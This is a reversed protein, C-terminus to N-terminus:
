NVENPKLVWFRMKGDISTLSELAPADMARLRLGLLMTELEMKWFPTEPVPMYFGNSGEQEKVDSIAMHSATGPVRQDGSSQMLVRSPDQGYLFFLAIPIVVYWKKENSVLIIAFTMSVMASFFYAHAQHAILGDNRVFIWGMLSVGMYLLLGKMEISRIGMNYYLKKWGLWFVAYYKVLIYIIVVSLAAISKWRLEFLEMLSPYNGGFGSFDIPAFLYSLVHKFNDVMTWGYIAGFSFLDKMNLPNMLNFGGAGPAVPPPLIAWSVLNCLTILGATLVVPHFRKSKFHYWYYLGMAGAIYFVPAKSAILFITFFLLEKENKEKRLILIIIQFLVFIYVFSSVILNYSIEDGYIMLLSIVVITFNFLNKPQIIRHLQIFFHSIFVIILLYRIEVFLMMNPHPAIFGISALVASPLLHNAAMEFPYYTPVKLNGWYDATLIEFAPSFYLIDHSQYVYNSFHFFRFYVATLVFVIGLWINIGGPFVQVKLFLERGTYIIGMIVMAGVLERTYLPIFRATVAVIGGSVLIGALFSSFFYDRVFIRGFSWLGVVGLVVCLYEIIGM